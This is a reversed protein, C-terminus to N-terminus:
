AGLLAALKTVTNWNRATGRSGLSREILANTLRSRGQGDPYIIYAQRGVARVLERGTIKRQLSTVAGATPAVRLFFVVLRAPDSKAAEPFPNADVLTAWERGSRVFFETPLKLRGASERELRSELRSPAVTGGDFIVNGTQLLTQAGAYGLGSMWARLDAMSLRNTGPLNIARLLAVHKM